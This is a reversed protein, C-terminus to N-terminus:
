LEIKGLENLKFYGAGSLNQIIEEATVPEIKLDFISRTFPPLIDKVNFVEDIAVGYRNDIHSPGGAVSMSQYFDSKKTIGVAQAMNQAVVLMQQHWEVASGERYGGLNIFFLKLGDVEVEGAPVVTIKYGDVFEIREFGDLHISKCGKWFDRISNKLSALNPAIDLYVDHQETLRGPVTAGLQLLWLYNEM